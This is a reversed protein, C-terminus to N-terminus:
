RWIRMMENGGQQFEYPVKEITVRHGEEEVGSVIAHVHSSPKGALDVLPFIRVERAVRLLEAISRRHFDLSLQESYLFLLHSCLALDFRGDEFPLAPLNGAIYRGEGQGQPFDALFEGMAVMRIRGLAEPSEIADWVFDYKNRRVQSIIEDYTEAIRREIQGTSFQYIPDVSVVRCGRRNMESNFSAPGDGCGLIRQDFDDDTLNFMRVYEEFSRGWPVVESLTFSM